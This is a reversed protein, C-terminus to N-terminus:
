VHALSGQAVRAQGLGDFDKLRDCVLRHVSLQASVRHGRLEPALIEALMLGKFVGLLEDFRVSLVQCLFAHVGELELTVFEALALMEFRIM